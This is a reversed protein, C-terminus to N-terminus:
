VDDVSAGRRTIKKWARAIEAEAGKPTIVDVGLPARSSPAPTVALRDGADDIAVPEGDFDWTGKIRWVKPLIKTLFARLTAGDIGEEFPITFKGPRGEFTDASPSAAHSDPAGWVLAPDLNARVTEVIPATPNLERIIRRAEEVTREDALDTKNLAVLTAARLQRPIAEVIGAMPAVKTADAPVVTAAPRCLEAVRPDALIKAFSSPDAVGSSEVLIAEPEREALSRLGDVFREARCACFISGDRVEVIEGEPFRAQAAELDIPLKGFDNVLAAIRSGRRSRLLRNLLTTKGAGLFGSILYVPVRGSM